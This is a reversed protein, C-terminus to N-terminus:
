LELLEEQIKQKVNEPMTEEKQLFDEIPAKAKKDKLALMMNILAIQIVPDKQKSLSAIIANRVKSQDKFVFLANAAALRVNINEDNNMTEILADTIQPKANDMEYAYNVGKIRESASPQKLLSLMVLKQMEQMQNEIDGIRDRNQSLGNANSKEPLGQSGLYYGSIFIILIAAVRTSWHLFVSLSIQKGPDRTTKRNIEEQISKELKEEFNLHPLPDELREKKFFSFQAQYAKLDSPLEREQNFFAKLKKEEALSSLGELYKNLLIRIESFEM